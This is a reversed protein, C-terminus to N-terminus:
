GTREALLALMKGLPPIIKSLFFWTQVIQLAFLALGIIAAAKWFIDRKM